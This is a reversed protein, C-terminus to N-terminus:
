RNDGSGQLVNREKRSALKEVNAQAIDGLSLGLEDATMAVYWLIDGLEGKIAEVKEAKYAIMDANVSLGDDRLIKKVKGQAEGTEGLGLSVYLLGLLTGRGPYIATEGALAQYDDFTLKM